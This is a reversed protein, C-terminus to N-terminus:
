CILLRPPVVLKQAKYALSLCSPITHCLRPHSTVNLGPASPTFYTQLTCFPTWQCVLVTVTLRKTGSMDRNEAGQVRYGWHAEGAKITVVAVGSASVLQSGVRVM